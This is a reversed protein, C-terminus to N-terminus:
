KDMTSRGTNQVSGRPQPGFMKTIDPVCYVHWDNICPKGVPVKGHWSRIKTRLIVSLYDPDDATKLGNLVQQGIVLLYCRIVDFCEFCPMCDTGTYSIKTLFISRISLKFANSKSPTSPTKHMNTVPHNFFNNELITISLDFLIQLSMYALNM